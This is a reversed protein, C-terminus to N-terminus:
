EIVNITMKMSPHVACEVAVEGAEDFEVEKGEGKGYSGLDFFAADSLSYVNHFAEDQNVFSVIDNVRITLNDESFALGKQNVVFNQAYALNTMFFCIIMIKINM